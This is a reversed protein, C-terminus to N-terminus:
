RMKLSNEMIKVLEFSSFLEEFVKSEVKNGNIAFAPDFSPLYWSVTATHSWRPGSITLNIYGQGRNFSEYVQSTQLVVDLEGERVSTMRYRHSGAIYAIGNRVDRKITGGGSRRLVPSMELYEKSEVTFNDNYTWIRSNRDFYTSRAWYIPCPAQGRVIHEHLGGALLDEPLDGVSNCSEIMKSMKGLHQGAAPMVMKGTALQRARINDEMSENLSKIAEYDQKSLGGRERDGKGDACGAVVLTLLAIGFVLGRM